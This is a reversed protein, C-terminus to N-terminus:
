HCYHKWSYSINGLEEHLDKGQMVILLLKADIKTSSSYYGVTKSLVTWGIRIRFLFVWTVDFWHHLRQNHLTSITHSQLGNILNGIVSSCIVSSCDTQLHMSHDCSFHSHPLYIKPACTWLNQAAYLLNSFNIKNEHPEGSEKTNCLEQNLHPAPMWIPLEGYGDFVVIWFWDM